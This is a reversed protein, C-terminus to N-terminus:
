ISTFGKSFDYYDSCKMGKGKCLDVLIALAKMRILPDYTWIVLRRLTLGGSQQEEEISQDLQHQQSELIALLRYYETLEKKIAFCFSQGVLGHAKDGVRADLYKRVKRFLWGLEALKNVLDRVPLPVGIQPDIRYADCDADFKIFTGEIGQFVLVIDRLLAQETVEFKSGDVEDSRNKIMMSGRHRTFPSATTRSASTLGTHRALTLSHAVLSAVGGGTENRSPLNESFRVAPTHEPGPSRRPAFSSMSPTPDQNSSSLRTNRSSIGSSSGSGHTFASM